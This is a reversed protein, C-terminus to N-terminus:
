YMIKPSQHMLFYILYPSLSDLALSIDSDLPKYQRTSSTNSVKPAQAAM